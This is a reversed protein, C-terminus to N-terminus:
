LKVQNKPSFASLRTGDQKVDNKGNAILTLLNM